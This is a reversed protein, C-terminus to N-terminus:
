YGGHDRRLQLKDIKGTSALPMEALRVVADPIWWSAVRGKLHGLLEADSIDMGETLEVLLLPRESWKADSRGIVAALSVQPLACVLAEIEAPNIWEGGSKILDKARGTIMLNGDRDIKALDGTNFWGDADTASQDQGFYRDIVAAGRVHLHGEIDRQEPLEAGNADALMLDVGLAPRGSIAAKRNPNSLVGVTGVPSLETMGWSTQVIAGLQTEIRDMLAPPMQAGGVVIRKLSPVTEGTAALHDCLGLWVTPVGVAISVAEARILRALSAGDLHRGPMVMKAGAAPIAFPLGWANAHFMPVVPMVTDSSTLALVDAQLLRMTHLFCARHTYTVGKPAGTSGSTFCLGSAAEEDFHGWVVDEDAQEIRSALASVIANGAVGAAVPGDIVLVHRVAPAHRAIDFALPQLDASAVLIAAGSQKIMSVLQEATLRPNLTHCVAGMGMTGYWAEVHAQSNWALTAVRQGVTVGLGELVKSVKRARAHLTRYDTHTVAGGETATAVTVDPHWRAAHDLIRDLTLSFDQMSGEFM